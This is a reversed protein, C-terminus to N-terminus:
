STKGTVDASNPGPVTTVTDAAVALTYSTKTKLGRITYTPNDSSGHAVGDVYWLYHDAFPVANASVVLTTSTASTVKLGTPKALTVTATTAAVSASRPGTEETGVQGAAVTFTYAENFHLGGIVTTNDFSAGVNQAVGGEFVQYNGADPVADWSLSVTSDSTATVKLGTPASLKAAPVVEDKDSFGYNTAGLTMKSIVGSGRAGSGLSFGEAVVKAHPYLKRWGDLTGHNGSGSGGTTLPAGSALVSSNTAWWDPTGNDNYLDEGVLLADAGRYGQGGYMSTSADGDLDVYLQIGPKTDTGNWTMTPEGADALATDGTDWYDSAKSDGSTTPDFADTIVSLGNDAFQVHGQSETDGFPLFNGARLTVTPDAQAAPVQAAYIGAAALVAASISGILQKNM